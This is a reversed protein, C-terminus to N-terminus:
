SHKALWEKLFSWAEHRVAFNLVIDLHGGNVVLTEKDKSGVLENFPTICEPPTIYDKEAYINLVPCIINKLSATKGNIKLSGNYIKNENYLEKLYKRTFNGPLAVNDERWQMIAKYLRTYQTNEPNKFLVALAKMRESPKIWPFVADMLDTPINGFSDITKDINIVEKDAWKRLIGGKEFNVPGELNIFSNIDEPFISSYIMGFNGGMCYGIINVTKQGSHEKIAEVSNKLYGDIYYDFSIDKESPQIFSWDTTYLDFGEELLFKVLSFDPLLDLIYYGNILSNIILLPIKHKKETESKYHYIKLRRESFVEEKPTQGVKPNPHNLIIDMGKDYKKVVEDFDQQLKDLLQKVKKDDM